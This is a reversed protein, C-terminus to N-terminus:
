KCGEAYSEILEFDLVVEIRSVEGRSMRAKWAAVETDKRHPGVNWTTQLLDGVKAHGRVASHKAGAYGSVFYKETSM